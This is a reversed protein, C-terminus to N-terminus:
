DTPQKMAGGVKRLLELFLRAEIDTLGSLLRREIADMHEHADDCAAIGAATIQALKVRGDTADGIVEVLKKEKLRRVIGTITAQSVSCRRELEKFPLVGNEAARLKLLLQLQALTVGQARVRNNVERELAEDIQKILPVGRIEDM